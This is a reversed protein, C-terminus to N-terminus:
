LNNFFYNIIEQMSSCRIDPRPDFSEDMKSLLISHGIGAAKAASIDSPKDGVLVSQVLDLRLDAAARLIMGPNPKRDFSDARYRGIGHEPHFPCFYVADITVGNASFQSCMWDTLYHFQKETYLGRGIGAQNTIVVIALGAASAKKCMDFVGDIFEFEEPRYVYNKEVNIVGDRDLFLAPRLSSNM